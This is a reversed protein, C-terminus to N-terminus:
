KTSLVWFGRWLPFFRGFYGVNNVKLNISKLANILSKVTFFRIHPGMPDFVTEFGILSIIVNKILGHYPTSVLLKGKPKLIRRFENLLPKVDYVHEIVDLCTIFDISDDKLPIKSDNDLLIFTVKKLSKKARKIGETSIDAGYYTIDPSIEQIHKLLFGTGCGYDLLVINKKKPILHKIAPWKYQFDFLEDTPKEKWYREYFTDAHQM